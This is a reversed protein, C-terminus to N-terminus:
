LFWYFIKYVLFNNDPTKRKFRKEIAVEKLTTDKYHGTGYESFSDTRIRPENILKANGSYSITDGLLYETFQFSDSKVREINLEKNTTTPVGDRFFIGYTKYQITYDYHNTVNVSYSTDSLEKRFKKKAAVIKEYNWYRDELFYDNITITGYDNATTRMRKIINFADNNTDFPFLFYSLFIVTLTGFPLFLKVSKNRKSARYHIFTLIFSVVFIFPVTLVVVLSAGGGALPFSNFLIFNTLLAAIPYTWPKM